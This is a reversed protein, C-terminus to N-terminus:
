AGIISIAIMIAFIIIGGGIVIPIWNDEKTIYEVFSCDIIDTASDKVKEWIEPLTNMVTADGFEVEDELVVDEEDTIDIEPEQIGETAETPETEKQQIEEEVIVVNPKTGTEELDIDAVLDKISRM